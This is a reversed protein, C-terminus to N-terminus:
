REDKLIMNDILRVDGAWAALCAGIYKHDKENTISQLTNGNIIEIYEPKLGATKIEKLSNSILKDISTTALNEKLKSLTRYLVLSKEKNSPTLRTNRSSMALGTPERLIPCVELKTKIKLQDIMHQIITFQQFDKQGMYLRDPSTIELLRNVVQMVGDFHGPRHAGEMVKDLKGLDIKVNTKLNKPYIAKETPYFLFDVKADKLLSLDENFTRPYKDLDSKENFQTPNVFISVVVIDCQKKAANVLSIHGHHLAGMTPVFGVSRNKKLALARRIGYVSKYVKTMAYTDKINKKSALM